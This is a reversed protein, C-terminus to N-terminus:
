PDTGVVPPQFVSPLAWVSRTTRAGGVQLHVREPDAKIRKLRQALVKRDMKRGMSTDLWRGLDDLFIRIRDGKIFPFRRQAAKEWEDESRPRHQVLYDEVWTRTENDPHSADGIDVDECLRLIAQM